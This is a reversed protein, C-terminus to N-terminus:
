SHCSIAAPCLSYGATAHSSFQSSLLNPPSMKSFSIFIGWLHWGPALLLTPQHHRHINNGVVPYTPGRGLHSVRPQTLNVIFCLVLSHILQVGDMRTGLMGPNLSQQILPPSSLNWGGAEAEKWPLQSLWRLYSDASFLPSPYWAM